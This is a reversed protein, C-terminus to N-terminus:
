IGGGNLMAMLAAMLLFFSGMAIKSFVVNRKSWNLFVPTTVGRWAAAFLFLLPLLFMINYLLLYWVWRSGAGTEKAMLALTPVYIQGTCVSELATVLVGIMFAGPILFRYKLGRRMIAHINRKVKGPLQLTVQDAKGCRRFRWADRFSLFAFLLLFLILLLEIGNQLVRYGTFLKLFRFLGFGLALYSLFCALCYTGGVLLLKTGGIRSVALLSLFFILTAFVCPNIGDLLGAAVIASITFAEARRHLTGSDPEPADPATEPEADGVADFLQREISRFGGLYRQRNVVMSVPENDDIHSQEQYAALKLYNDPTGIDYRKLEYKGKFQEELRPLIFANVKECEECGAQFFYEILVPQAPVAAALLILMLIAIPKM